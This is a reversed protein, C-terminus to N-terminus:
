HLTKLAQDLAPHEAQLPGVHAWILAGDAGFLMASPLEEGRFESRVKNSGAQLVTWTWGRKQALKQVRETRDDVAIAVIALDPHATQLAELVPLEAICPPCWSGWLNVLVPKGAWDALTVRTGDLRKAPFHAPLTRPLRDALAAFEPDSTTPLAPAVVDAPPPSALAALSLLFLPFAM